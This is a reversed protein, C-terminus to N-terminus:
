KLTFRVLRVLLEPPRCCEFWATKDAQLMREASWDHQVYVTGLKPLRAPRRSIVRQLTQGEATTRGSCLNQLWQSACGTM